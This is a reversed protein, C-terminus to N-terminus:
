ASNEPEAVFRYGEGAITVIYKPKESSDSLAARLKTVAVNLGKEFDVFVGEGWLLEQLEARTVVEGTRDLLTLLIQLPKPELKIRLGSKRLENRELDVEYPGFRYRTVPAVKTESTKVPTLAYGSEAESAM